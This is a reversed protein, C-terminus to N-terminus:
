TRLEKAKYGPHPVPPCAPRALPLGSAAHPACRLSCRVPSSKLSAVRARGARRNMKGPQSLVLAPTAEQIRHKHPLGSRLPDLAGRLPATTRTTVPQRPAPLRTTVVRRSTARPARGPTLCPIGCADPMAPCPRGTVTPRTGRLAHHDHEGNKPSLPASALRLSQSYHADLPRNRARTQGSTLQCSIGTVGVARYVGSPTIACNGRVAPLIARWLRAAKITNVAAGGPRRAGTFVAMRPLTMMM